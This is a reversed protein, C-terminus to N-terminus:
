GALAQGAWAALIGLILTAFINALFKRPYLRERDLDIAFASWTTFAGAFGMGALSYLADSGKSIYGVIFSGLVNVLLIGAPFAFRRRLQFDIYYRLPAGAFAGLSVLLATKM